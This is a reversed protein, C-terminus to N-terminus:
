DIERRRSAVFHVDRARLYSIRAVTEEFASAMIYLIDLDGSELVVTDRENVAGQRPFITGEDIMMRM